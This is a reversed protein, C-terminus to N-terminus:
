ALDSGGVPRHPARVVPMKELRIVHLGAAEATAVMNATGPGGPCALVVDPRMKAMEANRIAGAPNKQGEKLGASHREWEAKVPTHTIVDGCGRRWFVWNMAHHDFGDAQGEIVETVPGLQPHAHLLDLGAYLWMRDEYTTYERGGTVLVRM